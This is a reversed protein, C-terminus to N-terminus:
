CMWGDAIAKALKFNGMSTIRCLFDYLSFSHIDAYTDRLLSVPSLFAKRVLVDSGYRGYCANLCCKAFIWCHNNLNQLVGGFTIMM